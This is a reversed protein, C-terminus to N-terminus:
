VLRITHIDPFFPLSQCPPLQKTPLFREDLESKQLEAQKEALWGISLKDVAHTVVELLEEYQPSQPPSDEISEM